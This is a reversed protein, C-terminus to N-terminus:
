KERRGAVESLGDSCGKRRLDEGLAESRGLGEAHEHGRDARRRGIRKGAGVEDTLGAGEFYRGRESNEARDDGGESAWARVRSSLGLAGHAITTRRARGVRRRWLSLVIAM